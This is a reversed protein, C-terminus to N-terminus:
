RMTEDRSSMDIAIGAIPVPGTIDGARRVVSVVHDSSMRRQVDGVISRRDLDYSSAGPPM